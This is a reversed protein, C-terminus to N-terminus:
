NSIVHSREETSYHPESAAQNQHSADCRVIADHDTSEEVDWSLQGRAVQEGICLYHRLHDKYRAANRIVSALYVAVGVLRGTLFTRPHVLPLHPLSINGGSLFAAMALSGALSNLPVQKGVAETGRRNEETPDTVFQMVAPLVMALEPTPKHADVDMAILCGWWLARRKPMAHALVRRADALCDCRLLSDYFQQPTEATGLLAAAKPKLRIHCEDCLQRATEIRCPDQPPPAPDPVLQQHWQALQLDHPTMTPWVVNGVTTSGAAGAPIEEPKCKCDCSM